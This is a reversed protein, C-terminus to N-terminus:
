ETRYIQYATDENTKLSLAIKAKIKGENNSFTLILFIRIYPQLHTNSNNIIKNLHKVGPEM